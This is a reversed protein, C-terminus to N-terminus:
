PKDVVVLMGAFPGANQTLGLGPAHLRSITGDLYLADQCHQQDRLFIAFDWFSIGNRTVAVVVESGCVAIASRVKTNASKEDFSPHPTRNHLLLPGSQTALLMKDTSTIASSDKIHPQRAADLFFVGNPKLYFNGTGSSLNLPHLLKGDEIHLGIPYLTKDSSEGFIGANTIAIAREGKNVAAVGASEFTRYGSGTANKWVLRLDVVRPDFRVIDIPVGRYSATALQTGHAGTAIGSTLLLALGYRRMWCEVAAGM